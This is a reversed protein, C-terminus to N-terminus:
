KKTRPTFIVANLYGFLVVVAIGGAVATTGGTWAGLFGDKDVAKIVGQALAHGFGTLPITAGCGGFEVLAPYISIASLIAGLIVYGVLIKAPTLTTMNLLFQAIACIIGGTIFATLYEM